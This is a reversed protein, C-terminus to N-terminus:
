YKKAGNVTEALSELALYGAGYLAADTGLASGELQVHSISVPQAWKKAEEFIANVFQLGPGFLGGGLIIKEPNFMSVLNAIAMGLYEITQNLINTALLDGKGFAFFIDQSKIEELPITKLIGMYSNDAKIYERAVKAIGNGSAHYEFCGCPIYNSSFPRDLALWGAAGAAGSFGRIIQGNALIGAGIGTGILLFIMDRCNRANGMWVEGLICCARDNDICINIKSNNVSGAIDDFLPYNDWGPINNAWVRGSKEHFIGPISVGIANIQFNNKRADHLFSKTQDIIMQSVEKGKRNKLNKIIKNSVIGDNDFLAASLKTGGLDLGIVAM